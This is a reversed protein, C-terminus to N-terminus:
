GGGVDVVVDSSGSALFRFRLLSTLVEEAGTGLLAWYAFYGLRMSAFLCM